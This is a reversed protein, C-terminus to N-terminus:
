KKELNLKLKDSFSTYALCAQKFEEQTSDVMDDQELVKKVRDEPGTVKEYAYRSAGKVSAVTVMSYETENKFCLFNLGSQTKKFIPPKQM